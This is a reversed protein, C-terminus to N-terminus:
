IRLSRELLQSVRQHSVGLLRGIDRVTLHCRELLKRSVERAATTADRQAADATQRLERAADIEAAVEPPLVPVVTIDFSNSPVRLILAVADRAMDEVQDLRRCQSFVGPVEPVVIAWWDGSRVCQATYTAQAVPTRIMTAVM